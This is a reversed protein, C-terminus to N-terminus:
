KADYWSEGTNMDAVLPVLLTMANEMEERLITCVVDIEDKPTDVILEDHVQLILKARLGERKLRDYVKVMALKIIDAATGQIPTNLAVREGFSRINYNSSSLEPIYRIRNMLTKVYGDAAAQAKIRSMYERVGHYKELYSDIYGKAVKIPVGLDGSLSFEGIGYVIGFNVAKASRRQEPTVDELAVGFVNSATVTHIDDGSEFANIMNADGSIHALVRLEIQSYDADVLMHEEDSAVFMKRIRRGLETRVPINQMNPETSSIRGTATVTQNFVSHIKGTKKSIVNVLGDCYTSKLKALTRYKLILPIVPSQGKIKELVEANTSYGNKSKKLPKLGMKEFLMEGLQKPSNLNFEEGVAAFIEAKISDIEVMLMDGFEALSKKDVGFGYVQMSALVYCLPMEVDYFLDHQGNKEIKDSLKDWLAGLAYAKKPLASSPEDDLLSLQAPAAEDEDIDIGLYESMISKITHTKQPNILYGAIATDIVDKSESIKDWMLVLVDKIDFVIKKVNELNLVASFAESIDSTPIYVDNGVCFAADCLNEGVAEFAVSVTGAEKAKEIIVNADGTKVVNMEEFFETASVASTQTIGMRKMVSSLELRSLIASLEDVNYEENFRSAEIDFNIPVKRDITALTKSLFASDKGETVKKLTAGKLGSNDLDAYLAEISGFECILKIATKEGIGAVGPINDSADGMLAKVDIFQKPTVGYKEVVAKDDYVVTDSVGQRSVTLIINTMDSALQLDDKDGTAVMCKIDNKECIASVTGIIDDAEYGALELVPINMARIIEKAIPMQVKLGDPMPRRQAKYEDYMKHRFTPAKVDFAACIYDPKEESILKLFINMFGYVANTPTGDSASLFRIGYFARNIISNSDLILLKKM